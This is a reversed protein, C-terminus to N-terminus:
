FRDNNRVKNIYEQADESWVAKGKGRFKELTNKVRELRNIRKLIEHYVQELEESDLSDIEQIIVEAKSM